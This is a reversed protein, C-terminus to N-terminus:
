NSLQLQSKPVGHVAGPWAERDMVLVRLTSLNMDMLDSIDDLWKTRQQGRRRWGEIKGLTLTKELSDTRGMLHGSYQLKLMLEELSYEPNIEKPIAQNSRRATWPVRLLRRWCWLEFADIRQREAKEITWSECGYMVVPFVIAKDICVKALVTIVRSKLIQRPILSLISIAHMCALDSRNHGIRQSRISQLGGPEETRVRRWSIKGVWPKFRNRKHRKCQCTPRFPLM